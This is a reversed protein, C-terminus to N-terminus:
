SVLGVVDEGQALPLVESVGVGGSLSPPADTPPLGPVELVSLRLLRGASTVAGVQARTTTLVSARLADHSSRRRSRIPENEDATRALLGTASLLVRCATDPIELPVAGRASGSSRSAATGAIPLACTQV